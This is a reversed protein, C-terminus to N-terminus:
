ETGRATRVAREIARGLLVKVMEQRYERSGRVPNTRPQAEQAALELAVAITEPEVAADRLAEEAEFVRAPTPGIPGVALRVEQFSDGGNNLTVVAAANLIPLALANRKALREFASGQGPGLARFWVGILIEATSDVTCQRPGVCVGGLPDRRTGESGVVEVEADLAMLPVVTDAAPLANVINGGVTGVNRIQPSGMRAAGEALASARERILDSSDLEQHTVCAGVRIFGDKLEISRLEDLNTVDVLCKVALEKQKLQVILDTGGAIVRAQGEREKLMALAEELSTPALYEEWKMKGGKRRDHVVFIADSLVQYVQGDTWQFEIDRGPSTGVKDLYAHIRDVLLPRARKLKWSDFYNSKDVLILFLRNAADFRRAGQREYLWRVLTSPDLIAEDLTRDRTERLESLSDIVQQSPHDALKAWLDQLLHTQSMGRDYHVGFRQALTKLVTLERRLGLAKRKEAIYGEPLYTVKLDFPVDKIFFDIKKVQGVAPLTNPHDRFIDEIIISTWHNYWSCLVYGRLSTFLENDISDCLEDYRQIKKVYNNIITRELGSQYLGGWDFVQLRYLESILEDEVERRASREEEYIEQVLGDVAEMSVGAKYLERFMQKARHDRLTLGVRDVLRELYRKRSLSRLKLYLLGYSTQGLERMEDDRFLREAAEFDLPM